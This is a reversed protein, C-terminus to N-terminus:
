NTRVDIATKPVRVRFAKHGLLYSVDVMDTDEDWVATVCRADVLQGNVRLRQATHSRPQPM